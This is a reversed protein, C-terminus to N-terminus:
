ITIVFPKAPWKPQIDRDKELYVAPRYRAIMTYIVAMDLAPLYRNDFVPQIPDSIGRINRKIQQLVPKHFIVERLIETYTERHSNIIGDLGSHSPLGHGYRPKFLVPYELFLKQYRSSFIRFLFKLM